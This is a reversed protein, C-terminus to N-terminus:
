VKPLGTSGTTFMIVAIDNRIPLRPHVPSSKGLKEVESFSSVTWNGSNEPIESDSATEDDEFYIVNKITELSSSIEALKKRQM